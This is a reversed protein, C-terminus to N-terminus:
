HHTQFYRLYGAASSRFANLAEFKAMLDPREHIPAYEDKTQEELHAALFDLEESQKMGEAVIEGYRRLKEEAEDLM